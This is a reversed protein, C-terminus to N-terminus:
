KKLEEQALQEKTPHMIDKYMDDLESLMQKDKEKRYNDDLGCDNFMDSYMTHIESMANNFDTDKGKLFDVPKQQPQPKEDFSILPIQKDM